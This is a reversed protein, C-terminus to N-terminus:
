DFFKELKIKLGKTNPWLIRAIKLAKTSDISTGSLAFGTSMRLGKREYYAIVYYRYRKLRCHAEKQNDQAM